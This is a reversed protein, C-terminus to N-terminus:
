WDKCVIEIHSGIETVNRDRYLGLLGVALSINSLNLRKM